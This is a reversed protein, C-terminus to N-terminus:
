IPHDIFETRGQDDAGIKGDPYLIVKAVYRTM